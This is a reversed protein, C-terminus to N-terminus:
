EFFLHETPNSFLNSCPKEVRTSNVSQVSLQKNHLPTDHMKPHGAPDSVDGMNRCGFIDGSM